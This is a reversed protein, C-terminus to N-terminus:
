RHSSMSTLIPRSGVWLFITELLSRRKEGTLDTTDDLTSLKDLKAQLNQKTKLDTESTAAQAVM